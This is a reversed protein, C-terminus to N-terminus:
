ASLLDPALSLIAMLSRSGNRQGCMLTASYGFRRRIVYLDLTFDDVGCGRQLVGEELQKAYREAEFTGVFGVCFESKM